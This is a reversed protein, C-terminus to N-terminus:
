FILSLWVAYFKLDANQEFQVQKVVVVESKLYNYYTKSSVFQEIVKTDVSQQLKHM